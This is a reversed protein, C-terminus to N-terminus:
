QFVAATEFPISLFFTDDTVIRRVLKEAARITSAPIVRLRLRANVFQPNAHTGHRWGTQFFPEAYCELSANKTHSVYSIKARGRLLAGRPPAVKKLRM